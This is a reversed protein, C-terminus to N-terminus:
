FMYDLIVAVDRILNLNFTVSRGDDSEIPHCNKGYQWIAIKKRTIGSPAFPKWVDPSILHTTTIQDYEALSPTTAWVKCKEFVEADTQLGRSFERDFPVSSDTNAKFGPVVGADALMEAYGKMYEHTVNEADGIELFVAVGNPIKLADAAVLVKKATEKGQNETEKGESDSYTALVRCGLQHIRDVEERTLANEGTLLRGWFNPYTKNRAVWEDLTLNNQLLSSSPFASDVGFFLQEVTERNSSEQGENKTIEDTLIVQSNMKIADRCSM